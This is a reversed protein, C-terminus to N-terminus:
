NGRKIWNIVKRFFPIMLIFVLPIFILKLTNGERRSISNWSITADFDRNGSFCIYTISIILWSIFFVIQLRGTKKGLHAISFTKVKTIIRNINKWGLYGFGLIIILPTLGYGSFPWGFYIFLFFRWLFIVFFGIIMGVFFGCVKILIDQIKM